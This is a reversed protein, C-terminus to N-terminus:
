RRPTVPATAFSAIALSWSTLTGVDDGADDVIKLTWVGNPNQGVFPGPAGRPSLPTEVVLNAYTADTVPGPPNAM